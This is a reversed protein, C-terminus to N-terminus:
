RECSQCAIHNGPELKKIGDWDSEWVLCGSCKKKSVKIGM